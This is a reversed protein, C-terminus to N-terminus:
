STAQWQNIINCIKRIDKVSVNRHTPLNLIQSSILLSKKGLAINRINGSTKKPAIPFDYWIDSVHVGQKALQKILGLRDKKVIIPYRILWNGKIKVKESLHKDYLNVKTKRDKIDEKLHSLYYDAMAANWRPLGRLRIEQDKEIPVSLLNLKKLIYHVAKGLGLPYLGRVVCTLLPYLHDKAQVSYNVESDVNNTESLFKKNRIILAGGSVADIIKDQSFSLMLFDGYYQDHYAHALDEILIIDKQRCLRSISKLESNNGLTNQFIVAKVKSNNNLYKKLDALNFNLSDSDIDMLEVQCKSQIVAQYVVSCTFGNVVVIDESEVGILNLCAVLAERGKYFLVPRGGYIETLRSKFKPIVSKTPFLFISKLIYKLDYNSGLSNFINM